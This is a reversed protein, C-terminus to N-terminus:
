CDFLGLYYLTLQCGIGYRIFSITRFKNAQLEEVVSTYGNAVRYWDDFNAEKIAYSLQVSTM